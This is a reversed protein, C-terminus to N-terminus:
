AHAAHTARDDGREHEEETAAARLRARVLAPDHRLLRRVRPGLEGDERQEPESREGRDAEDEDVREGVRQGGHRREEARRDPEGEEEERRREDDGAQLEHRGLLDGLLVRRVLV